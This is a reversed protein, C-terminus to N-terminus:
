RGPRGRRVAGYGDRRDVRGGNRGSDRHRWGRDREGAPMTERVPFWYRSDRAPFYGEDYAAPYSWQEMQM